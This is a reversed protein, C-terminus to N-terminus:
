NLRRVGSARITGGGGLENLIMVREDIGEGMHRLGVRGQSPNGQQWLDLFTSCETSQPILVGFVVDNTEIRLVGPSDCSLSALPLVGRFRGDPGVEVGYQEEGVEREPTPVPRFTAVATAVPAAEWPTWSVVATPPASVVQVQGTTASECGVLAVLALSLCVLTSGRRLGVRLTRRWSGMRLVVGM